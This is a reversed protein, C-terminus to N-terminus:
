KMIVRGQQSPINTSTLRYIFVGQAVRAGQEDNGDWTVEHFGPAFQKNALISVRKGMMDYVAIQIEASNVGAVFPISIGSSSPNPYPRGLGTIDPILSKGDASFFIKLRHKEAQEIRYENAQKMDVLLNADADYLLLQADNNGLSKANWSLVVAEDFNSEVTFDWNHSITTPVVDRSFKPLFHENHLSNMELYKVFRPLAQEDFRDNSEKAQPHMGIGPMENYAKGSRLTIPLFWQEESIDLNDIEKYGVRGSASQKVTVPINVTTANDSKVFGGEWAKLGGSEKFSASIADYTFLKGVGAPNNNSALIDLWSIDFPYPNGIQTWGQDLSLVFPKSQNAQVATGSLKIEIKDLANFWYGRGKEIQTLVEPYDANKGGQYRVLRWKTKDSGGYFSIVDQFVASINKDSLELPISFIQYSDLTGGAKLNPVPTASVPAYIFASPTSDARNTGDIAKFYYEMGLEDLDAATYQIELTNGAVPAAATFKSEKIKRKYFTIKNNFGTNTTITSKVANATSTTALNIEPAVLAGGGGGSADSTSIVEQDTSPSAGGSNTARVVAVYLQSPILGSVQTFTVNGVPKANYGTIFNSNADRVDIEYGSAGASANWQLVFQTAQVSSSRFNTPTLAITTQNISNSNASTNTTNKARVRYYYNTGATLGTVSNSTAAGISKNNYSTLISSFGADTAVDLFYEDAGVSPNWKAVFSTQTVDVQATPQIAVPAAPDLLVSSTPTSNASAAAVANNSRVRYYYTTGSALGTAAQSTGSVTLNNYGSVFSSFDSALSVDLSYNAANSVAVWNATFGGSSILTASTITPAVTKTTASNSLPSPTYYNIAGGSGNFSYISYFHQLGSTLGADSFTTAAGVYAVVGDGLAAGIIYTSGDAPVGTPASGTKRLAIYGSAGGVASTFSADMSTTGINSFNLSTPQNSPEVVLTTQSGELPLAPLYNITVGSGNFAFIDYFYITNVALGSQAFSAASGIYAILGDGLTNGVTYTTGDLPLATAPSSGIKRLAIYGAAGGASATFNVNFSTPTLSSFNLGTPQATPEVVVTTANATPITAAIRYNYTLANSGNYGYPIIAYNYQIGSSLGTDSFATSGTNTITTVLTTGAVPTTATASGDNINTSNPNFGDQRRLIIYGAANTITSAASFSLNIQSTGAQTATFAASHATPELSLTTASTVPITAATRYNYTLANTGNYGYPIIAYNYQTGASVADAFSTTGTNTITAVLSTGAAPTGPTATADNIGTTAPNTGDQRRLIIYGAANTITSAASFTLNITTGSPTATFIASHATPELSLTTANATPITVATRYNYTLANSGNYGYPIITYNYQIGPNVADSFSTTATSTVTTVLTTGAAPTAAVAAADNIGTTGPNTGDQRRLIIYGAAGTITSAASFALNIQSTGAQTATFVAAHAVPESSLTTANATPITAVTRYNYTVPNSGNYGYPIIAYNYQTGPSVADSFTTTATNTITTVLTTGAVPTAPITAGDNVGISTPNALDQRRLIIYGAANTITNAASFTLNIQSTGAQTATFAASHAAPELSLTTANATPITSVTRFNYTLPDSGNYGYPIIVYNYQTGPSVGTDNFSTTATSTITTVLTTGAAPTSPAALGDVIGISTPNAGDQRRLIIYGAAGTVTSAASFALNIQNTGAQTATFSGAHAFPESSLTIRSMPNNPAVPTFFNSSEGSGNQEFVRFHYTTAPALNTVLFSNGSSQYVVFNGSGLSTGNGLFSIANYTVGDLPFQSVAAGTSAVILRQTGNGSVWNVQMSNDNVIPFTLNTAQLTPEATLTFRTKPNNTNTFTAYNSATGTGDLEFVQFAYQTNSQLNTVNVSTGAGRYVVRHETGLDTALTYNNNGTYSTGDVPFNFISGTNSAVVLRETGGGNTWNVTASNITVSSFTINSAQFSPENALTSRSSPNGTDTSTNYLISGGSSNYEFVWFHYTTGASLGNLTVSSGCCSNFVVYSNSGLDSGGGFFNSATYFNNNAPIGVVPSNARAVVIRGNGNGNTWSLDITNTTAVVPFSIASAQTSPSTFVIDSWNNSVRIGDLSLDSGSRGSIALGNASNGSGNSYGISVDSSPETAGLTPNIFLSIQGLTRKMVVLYTTNYSYTASTFVNGFDSFLGFQFGGGSSSLVLGHDNSGGGQNPDFALIVGTGNSCGGGPIMFSASQANVLFGVYITPSFNSFSQSLSGQGLSSSILAANGVGSGIYGPYALSFSTNTIDIGGCDNNWGSISCSSCGTFDDQFLMQAHVPALFIFALFATSYLKRM